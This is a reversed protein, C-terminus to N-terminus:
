TDYELQQSFMGFRNDSSSYMTLYSFSDQINNTTRVKLFKNIAGKVRLHEKGLKTENKMKQM